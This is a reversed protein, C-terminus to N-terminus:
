INCKYAAARAWELITKADPLDGIHDVMKQADVGGYIDLVVVGYGPTNSGTYSKWTEGQPDALISFYGNQSIALDTLEDKTAHGIALVRSNLEQYEAQDDCIAKFLTDIEPVPEFFILVLGSKNRFQGRTYSRGDLGELSFQPSLKGYELHAELHTM